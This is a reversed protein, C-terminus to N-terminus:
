SQAINNAVVKIQAISVPGDEFWESSKFLVGREERSNLHIHKM